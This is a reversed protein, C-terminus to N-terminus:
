RGHWVIEQGDPISTREPTPQELVSLPPMPYAPRMAALHISVLSVALASAALMALPRTGNASGLSRHVPSM